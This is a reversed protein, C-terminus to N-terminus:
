QTKVKHQKLSLLFAIMLAAILHLWLNVYPNYLFGNLIYFVITFVLIISSISTDKKFRSFCWAILLISSVIVYPLFPGFDMFLDAFCTYLAWTRIDLFRDMGKFSPDFYAILNEFSKLGGFYYDTWWIDCNFNYFPEGAYLYFIDLASFGSFAGDDEQFRFISIYLIYLFILGGFVIAVRNVSKRLKPSLGKKFFMYCYIMYLIFQIIINRAGIIMNHMFMNLITMILGAIILKNKGGRILYTFLLIPVVILTVGSINQLRASVWTLHETGTIKLQMDKANLMLNWDVGGSILHIFNEIFPPVACCAIAIIIANFLQPSEISIRSYTDSNNGWLFIIYMIYLGALWIFPAITLDNKVDVYLLASNYYLITFISSLFWVLPILTMENKMGKKKLCYFFVLGYFLSNLILLDM